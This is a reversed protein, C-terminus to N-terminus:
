DDALVTSVTERITALVADYDAGRQEAIYRHLLTIISLSAGVLRVIDVHYEGTEDDVLVSVAEVDSLRQLALKVAAANEPTDGQSHDFASVADLLVMAAQRQSM